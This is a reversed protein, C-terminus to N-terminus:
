RALWGGCSVSCGTLGKGAWLLALLCDLAVLTEIVQEDRMRGTLSDMAFLLKERLWGEVPVGLVALASLVVPVDKCELRYAKLVLSSLVRDRLVGQLPLELDALASLLQCVNPASMEVATREAAALAADRTTGAPLAGGEMHCNLKSCAWLFAASSRGNMGPAKAGAAELVKDWLGPTPPPAGHWHVLASAQHSSYECLMWMV